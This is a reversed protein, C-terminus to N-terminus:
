SRGRVPLRLGAGVRAGAATERADPVAPTQGPELGGAPGCLADGPRQRQEHLRPPRRRQRGGGGGGGKPDRLRVPAQPGAERTIM